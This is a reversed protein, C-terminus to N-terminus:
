FQNKYKNISWDKDEKEKNERENWMIEKDKKSWKRICEGSIQM